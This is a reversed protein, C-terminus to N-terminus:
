GQDFPLPPPYGQEVQSHFVNNLKVLLLHNKYLRPMRQCVRSHEFTLKKAINLSVKIKGNKELIM